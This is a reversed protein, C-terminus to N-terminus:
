HKILRSLGRDVSWCYSQHASEFTLSTKLRVPTTGAGRTDTEQTIHVRTQRGHKRTTTEFKTTM